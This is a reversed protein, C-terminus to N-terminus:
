ANLEHGFDVFGGGDIKWPFVYVLASIARGAGLTSIVYWSAALAYYGDVGLHIPFVTSAGL